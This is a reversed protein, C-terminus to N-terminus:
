YLAWSSASSPTSSPLRYSSPAHCQRDADGNVLRPAFRGPRRQVPTVACRSVNLAYAAHRRRVTEHEAM